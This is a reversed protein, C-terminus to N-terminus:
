PAKQILEPVDSNAPTILLFRQKVGEGAGAAGSSLVERFPGIAQAIQAGALNTKFIVLEEKQGYPATRADLPIQRSKGSKTEKLYVFGDRVQDWMLHIDFGGVEM